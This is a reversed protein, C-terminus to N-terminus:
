LRNGPTVISPWEALTHLDGNRLEQFQAHVTLGPELDLYLSTRDQFEITLSRTNSSTFLQVKEAVKGKILPFEVFRRGPLTREQLALEGQSLKRSPKNTRHARDGTSRSQTRHVSRKGKRM